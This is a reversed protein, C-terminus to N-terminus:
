VQVEKELCKKEEQCFLYIIMKNINNSNKVRYIYLSDEEKNLIKNRLKSIKKIVMGLDKYYVVNDFYLVYYFFIRMQELLERDEIHNISMEEETQKLYDLIKRRITSNVDNEYFNYYRINIYKEVYAENYDKNFKNGFVLRMYDNIEKKTLNIYQNMINIAM